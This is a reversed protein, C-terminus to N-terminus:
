YYSLNSYGESSNLVEPLGVRVLRRDTDYEYVVSRGAFDTFSRLLGYRDGDGGQSEPRPDDYYELKFRRGLEDKIRM